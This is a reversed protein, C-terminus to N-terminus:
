KYEPVYEEISFWSVYGNEKFINDTDDSLLYIMCDKYRYFTYMKQRNNTSTCVYYEGYVADWKQELQVDNTRNFIKDLVVDKLNKLQEDEALPVIRVWLRSKNNSSDNEKLIFYSVGSFPEVSIYWIEARRDNACIFPVSGRKRIWSFYERMEERESWLQTKGDSAFYHEVKGETDIFRKLESLDSPEYYEDEPFVYDTFYEGESNIDEQAMSSGNQNTNQEQYECGVLITIFFLILVVLPTKNTDM